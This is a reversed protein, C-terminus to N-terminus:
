SLTSKSFKESLSTGSTADKANMTMQAASSLSIQNGKALDKIGRYILQGANDKLTIRKKGSTRM